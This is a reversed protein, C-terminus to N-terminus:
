ATILRVYSDDLKHKFCDWEIHPKILNILDKQSEFGVFIIPYKKNHIKVHSKIGVDQKLREVLFECDDWTFGHTCFM